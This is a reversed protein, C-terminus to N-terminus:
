CDKLAGGYLWGYHLICTKQKDVWYWAMKCVSNESKNVQIFIRTKPDFKVSPQEKLNLQSKALKPESLPKAVLALM